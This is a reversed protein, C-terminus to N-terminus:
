RESSCTGGPITGGSCHQGLVCHHNLWFSPRRSECFGQYQRTGAGPALSVRLRSFSASSYASHCPSASCIVSSCASRFRGPLVGLMTTCLGRPCDPLVDRTCAM